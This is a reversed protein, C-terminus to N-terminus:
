KFYPKICAAYRATIVQCKTAPPITKNNVLSLYIAWCRRCIPVLKACQAPTKGRYKCEDACNQGIVYNTDVARWGCAMPFQAFQAQAPQVGALGVLAVLGIFFWRLKSTM